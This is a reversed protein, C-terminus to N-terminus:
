VSKEKKLELERLRDKAAILMKDDKPLGSEKVFQKFCSITYDLYPSRKWKVKYPLNEPENAQNTLICDVSHDVGDEDSHFKIAKRMWWECVQGELKTGGYTMDLGQVAADAVGLSKELENKSAPLLNTNLLGAGALSVSKIIDRRNM